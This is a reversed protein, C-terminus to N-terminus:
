SIVQMEKLVAEIDVLLAQCDHKHLDGINGLRFCDAKSVQRCDDNM